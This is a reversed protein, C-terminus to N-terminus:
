DKFRQLSERNPNMYHRVVDDTVEAKRTQHAETIKVLEEVLIDKVEGSLLEGAKYKQGIEELRSDDDMLYRLYEYSVDVDINAGLRRQESETDQGGSFAYKHIKNRGM